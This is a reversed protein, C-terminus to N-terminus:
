KVVFYTVWFYYYHKNGNQEDDDDMTQAGGDDDDDDDDPGKLEHNSPTVGLLVVYPGPALESISIDGFLEESVSTVGKKWAKLKKKGSVSEWKFASGLMYVSMPDFLDTLTPAFVGFYVDVPASFIGTEVKVSLINGGTAVPGLGVPM